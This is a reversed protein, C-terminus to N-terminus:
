EKTCKSARHRQHQTRYIGATLRTLRAVEFPVLIEVPLVGAPAHTLRASPAAGRTATEPAPGHARNVNRNRSTYSFRV